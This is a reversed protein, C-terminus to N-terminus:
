RRDAGEYLLQMEKVGDPDDSGDRREASLTLDYAMAPREEPSYANM